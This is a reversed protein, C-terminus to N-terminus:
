SLPTWQFTANTYGVGNWTVKYCASYVVPLNTKGLYVHANASGGFTIVCDKVGALICEEKRIIYLYAFTGYPKGEDYYKARDTAKRFKLAAHRLSSSVYVYDPKHERFKLSTPDRVHPIEKTDYDHHGRIISDPLLCKKKQALLDSLYEREGNSFSAQDFGDYRVQDLHDMNPPCVHSFHYVPRDRAAVSFVTSNSEQQVLRRILLDQPVRDDSLDDPDTFDLMDGDKSHSLMLWNYRKKCSKVPRGLKVAAAKFQSPRSKLLALLSSDEEIKWHGKHKTRVNKPRGVKSRIENVVVKDAANRMVDINRKILEQSPDTDTFSSM